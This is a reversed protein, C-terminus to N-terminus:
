QYHPINFIDSKVEASLMKEMSLQLTDDLWSNSELETSTGHCLIIEQLNFFNADDLSHWDKIADKFNTAKAVQHPKSYDARTPILLL